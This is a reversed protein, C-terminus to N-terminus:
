AFPHQGYCAIIMASGHDLGCQVVLNQVMYDFVRKALIHTSSGFRLTCQGMAQMNVRRGLKLISCGNCSGAQKM